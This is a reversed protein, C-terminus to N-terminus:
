NTAVAHYRYGTPERRTYRLVVFAVILANLVLVSIGLVYLSSQDTKVVDETKESASGAAEPENHHKLRLPGLVTNTKWVKSGLDRRQRTVCGQNCRSGVDSVDCIVLQCQLYVSPHTNLFKFASFSFRALGSGSPYNHYTNDKTCGRRILDYNPSHFNAQPSAFCTDVFVTLDSDSSQVTAQLFVSQNLEIFYPSEQVPTIFDNTPYFDLSVDYKGSETQDQIIDDETVYMIEAISDSELECTVIIQLQKRRTIVGVTSAHITNTYYITHDQLKKVTGCSGFPVEFVVPNASNPACTKDNLTLENANYGLSDIYNPNIVVTMSDGSCSLSSNNTKPIASYDVSFGFYSNAYDGNFVLTFENSSTELNAVTRGCLVDKLPSDTTPGDYVAIFDFRCAFDPEVFIETFSLKAKTNKPTTVHWVCYTFPQHRDPYNPSSIKGSYSNLNGGCKVTNAPTVSYYLFYVTRTLSASNSFVRVYVKGPSEFTTIKPSNPCLVGLVGFDEDLVTVNEQSCDASPNLELMSFIVRTTENAPRVINWTCDNDGTVQIQVPKYADSFSSGCRANCETTGQAPDYM